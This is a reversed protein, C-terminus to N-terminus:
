VTVSAKAAVESTCPYRTCRQGDVVTENQNRTDWKLSQDVQRCAHMSFQKAKDFYSAILYKLISCTEAETLYKASLQRVHLHKFLKYRGSRRVNKWSSNYGVCPSLVRERRAIDLYIGFILRKSKTPVIKSGFRVKRHSLNM